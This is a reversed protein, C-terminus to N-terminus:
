ATASWDIYTKYFSSGGPKATVVFGGKSVSKLSVLSTGVIDGSSDAKRASFSVDPIKSFPEPFSITIDASSNALIRTTYEYTGSQTKPPVVLYQTILLAMDHLSAGEPVEVGLAVIADGIENAAGTFNENAEQFADYIRQELDNFSDASLATGPNSVEGEEREVDVVSEAGTNTDILKRRNPYQSIRDVWTKKAFSM